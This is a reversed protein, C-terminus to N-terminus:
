GPDRGIFQAPTPSWPSVGTLGISRCPNALVSRPTKHGHQVGGARRRQRGAAVMQDGQRDQARDGALPRDAQDMEVGMGVGAVAIEAALFVGVARREAAGDLLAQDIGLPRDLDAHAARHIGGVLLVQRRLTPM